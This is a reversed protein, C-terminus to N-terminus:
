SRTRADLWNYFVDLSYLVSTILLQQLNNKSSVHVSSCRGPLFIFGELNRLRYRFIPESLKYNVLWQRSTATIQRLCFQPPQLVRTYVGERTFASCSGTWARNWLDVTRVRHKCVYTHIYTYRIASCVSRICACKACRWLALAPARGVIGARDKKRERRPDDRKEGRRGSAIVRRSVFM